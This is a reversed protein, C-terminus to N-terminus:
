FGSLHVTITKPYGAATCATSTAIIDGGPDDTLTVTYTHGLGTPFAKNAFGARWASNQLLESVADEVGAEAVYLATASELTNHICRIQDTHSDLMLCVLPASIAM